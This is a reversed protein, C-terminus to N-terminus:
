SSTGGFVVDEIAQREDEPPRRAIVHVTGAPLVFAVDRQDGGRRIGHLPFELDVVRAFTFTRAHRRVLGQNSDVEWYRTWMGRKYATALTILLVVVASVWLFSSPTGGEEQSWKFLYDPLFIVGGGIGGWALGLTAGSLCEKVRGAKSLAIQVTGNEAAQVQYKM